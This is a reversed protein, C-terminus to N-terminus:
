ESRPHEAYYRKYTELNDPFDIPAPQEYACMRLPTPLLASYDKPELYYFYSMLRHEFRWHGDAERRYEDDYRLASLMAKGHRVVEGHANLTGFAHDPDAEDFWIIHNHTFHNTPGLVSFRNHYQAVVEDRGKSHHVGDTSIVSATATFCDAIGDMDRGDVVFGYRGVLAKIQERDELERVREELTRSM